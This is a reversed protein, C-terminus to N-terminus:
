DAEMAQIFIEVLEPDFQTGSNDRIEQYAQEITKAQKYPRWHTMADFSDALTLLRTLYPIEKGKLGNPYGHGDYREHHSIVIPLLDQLDPIQAIIEASEKPHTKLEEWQAETLPKETILIEKSVNIKGLDHLYAACVLRVKTEYDLEMYDALKKCYLVVREVHSYTYSDRSNIVAILTKISQLADVLQEKKGNEDAFEDFVNAYMEVRDSRLFKARYLAGDAREILALSTDDGGGSQAVGASITLNHQPLHDQGEFEYADIIEKIHSAIAVAEEKTTDPLVIGFEEGGYRCAIQGNEINEEILDAVMRLVHDGQQHGFIDNYTKFGDLDLMILCIPKRSAKQKEFCSKLYEHFYRHNYLNTLEDKNVFALLTSIHRRELQVYYGLTWAVVIFMASLALDNEFHINIANISQSVLDVILLFAASCGAIVMGTVMNYEITYAVILFIFLFKYNSESLGSVYISFTCLGFFAVIELIRIAINERKKDDLVLWVLMVASLIVLAVAVAFLNSEIADDSRTDKFTEQFIPSACLFLTLIRLTFFMTKILEEKTKGYSKDM